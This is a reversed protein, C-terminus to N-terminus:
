SSKLTKSAPTTGSRQQYLMYGFVAAAITGLIFFNHFAFGLTGEVFNVVGKGADIVTQLAFQFVHVIAMFFGQILELISQFFHTIGTAIGM